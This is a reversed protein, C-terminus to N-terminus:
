SSSTLHRYLIQPKNHSIFLLSAIDRLHHIPSPSLAGYAHRATVLNTHLPPAELGMGPWRRADYYYLFPFVFTNYLPPTSFGMGPWRGQMMSTFFLPIRLHYLPSPSLAGYGAVKALGHTLMGCVFYLTHRQHLPSPSLAGYGIEKRADYFYLFPSHSPPIFPLPQSSWVRGGECFWPDAHCLCFLLFIVNTYLPPASLEM